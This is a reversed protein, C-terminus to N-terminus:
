ITEPILALDHVQPPRVADTALKGLDGLLPNGIVKRLGRRRAIERGCDSCKHDVAPTFAADGSSFRHAGCHTCSLEVIRGALHPLARQAMLTRVMRSDLGVGDIVVRAFTEDIVPHDDGLSKFAHVHVGAVESTQGTWVIAPNSGWIQIGGDFDAQRMHLEEPARKPTSAKYGLAKRVRAIPNGVTREVDRFHRGCGACLHSAHPHVAFWDRDLHSYGCLSCLVEKMAFGFISSVMFYIADLDSITFKENGTKLRVVLYTHDIAKEANPTRRAHVHIGRDLPRRTTDYVPPVAGWLGIGGRFEDADLEFIEDPRPAPVLAYRCHQARRGYKATADARHRLCWYRTGGDRRKGVAVVNCGDQQSM